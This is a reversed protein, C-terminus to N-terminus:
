KSRARTTSAAAMAAMTGNSAAAGDVGNASVNGNITSAIITLTGQNYIGGGFAARGNSITLSSILATLEPIL